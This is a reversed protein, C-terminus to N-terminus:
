RPKKLYVYFAGAGGHRQHAEYVGVIRAAFPGSRLWRPAADRLVGGASRMFPADPGGGLRGGKGTIVLLCRARNRVASAVFRELAHHARDATMGHLDLRMDPEREGRRLREATRRDLGAEPRGVPQPDMHARFVLPAEPAHRGHPRVIRGREGLPPIAPATIPRASLPAPESLPHPPEAEPPQAAHPALTRGPVLRRANRTVAEWVARDDDSLGRRPRRRKPPGSM